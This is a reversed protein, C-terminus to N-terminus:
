QNQITDNVYPVDGDGSWKSLISEDFRVIMYLFLIYAGPMLLAWNMPSIIAWVWIMPLINVLIRNERQLVKRVQDRTSAHRVM